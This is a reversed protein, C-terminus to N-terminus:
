WEFYTRAKVVSEFPFEVAGEKTELKITNAEVGVLRGEYSLKDKLKVKVLEGISKEFHSLTTIKREVGSTGVELRYDGGVPPTVDLMPSILHTLEVCKDMDVGGQTKDKPMVSVRFITEANENVIGIDYLALGVSEVLAEIEKELSM